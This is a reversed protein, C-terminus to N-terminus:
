IADVRTGHWINKGDRFCMKKWDAILAALREGAVTLQSILTNYEAVSYRSGVQITRKVVKNDQVWEIHIMRKTDHISYDYTETYYCHPYGNLYELPLDEESAATVHFVHYYPEGRYFVRGSIVEIKGRKKLGMEEDMNKKCKKGNSM